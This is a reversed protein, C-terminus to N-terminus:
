PTGGESSGPNLYKQVAAVITEGLDGAGDMALRRIRSTTSTAAQPELFVIEGCYQSLNKRIKGEFDDVDKTSHSFVAVDPNIDVIIQDEHEDINRVTLIDVSRTHALMLLREQLNVIPRNKIDPKRVRTLEDSDVAVILIDGRKKAEELYKVHSEHLLDYVGSTYVIKKGEKKFVGIVWELQERDTIIRDHCNVGNGIINFLKVEKEDPVIQQYKKEANKLPIEKNKEEMKFSKTQHYILRKAPYTLTSM